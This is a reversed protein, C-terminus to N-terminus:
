PLVFRFDGSGIAVLKLARCSFVAPCPNNRANLEPHKSADAFCCPIVVGVREVVTTTDNTAGCGNLPVEVCFSSSNFSLVGSNSLM